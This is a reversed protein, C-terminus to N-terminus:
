EKALLDLGQDHTVLKDQLFYTCCLNHHKRRSVLLAQPCFTMIAWVRSAFAGRWAQGTAGSLIDGVVKQAFKDVRMREPITAKAIHKEAPKFISSEAPLTNPALANPNNMNTEVAGAVITL